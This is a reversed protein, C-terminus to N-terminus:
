SPRRAWPPASTARAAARPSRTNAWMSRAARRPRVLRVPRRQRHLVRPQFLLARRRDDVPRSTPGHVNAVLHMEPYKAKIADYFLAYREQYAPGGNENGIEMYKLDFPAPHGAKARLAGWTSDAPGNAYEIADLADQVFEDMKDLPVNESTRCAATSSSSRSPASTKACRSISTIAWATRPTITGSTRSATRRESSTASPRDELSLCRGAHRRRGLLRRPLARVVPKLGALMEALDPRLGNPRDKWTQRPFSRSWTWGSRAPASPPSSWGRWTPAMRADAHAPTAELRRGPRRDAGRCLRDQRRRKGLPGGAPRPLRRQPRLAVPRLPAGQKVAIGWFGENAVGM